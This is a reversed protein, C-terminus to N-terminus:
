ASSFAFLEGLNCSSITQALASGASWRASMQLLAEAERADGALSVCLGLVGYSPSLVEFHEADEFSHQEAYEVSRKAKDTAAALDGRLLSCISSNRLAHLKSFGTLTEANLAGEASSYDGLSRHALALRSAVAFAYLPDHAMASAAIDRTRLLLPLAAACKHQRLLEVANAYEPISGM